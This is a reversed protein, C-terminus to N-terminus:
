LLSLDVAFSLPRYLSKRYVQGQVHVAEKVISIGVLIRDPEHSICRPQCMRMVMVWLGSNVKPSM